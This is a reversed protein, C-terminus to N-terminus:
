VNYCRRFIFFEFKGDISMLDRTAIGDVMKREKGTVSSIFSEVRTKNNKQDFHINGWMEKLPDNVPGFTVVYECDRSDAGSVTNIEVNTLNKM